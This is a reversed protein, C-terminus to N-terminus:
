LNGESILVRVCIGLVVVCQIKERIHNILQNQGTPVHCNSENEEIYKKAYGFATKEAVTGITGAKFVYDEGFLKETYKHIASSLDLRGQVM